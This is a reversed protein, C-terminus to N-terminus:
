RAAAGDSNFIDTVAKWKGDVKKWVAVYKGKDSVQKGDTGNFSLTYFGSTYALDGSRAVSAETPEWQITFNSLGFMSSWYKKVAEPGRALAANPPLVAGDETYFSATGDLDRATAAKSWAIDADRVAQEDKSSAKDAKGAAKGKAAGKDQALATGAVGLSIVLALASTSLMKKM